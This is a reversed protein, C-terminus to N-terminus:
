EKVVEIIKMLKLNYQMEKNIFLFDIKDLVSQKLRENNIFAIKELFTENLEYDEFVINITGKSKITEIKIKLFIIPSRFIEDQETGYLKGQIYFLALKLCNIETETELDFDKKRIKELKTKIIAQKSFLWQSFDMTKALDLIEQEYQLQLKNLKKIKTELNRIGSQTEESVNNKNTIILQDDLDRLVKVLNIQKSELKVEKKTLFQELINDILFYEQIEYLDIIMISNKRIVSYEAM